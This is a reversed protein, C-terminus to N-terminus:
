LLGGIYRSLIRPHISYRSRHAEELILERNGGFRPVWIRGKFTMFGRSDMVLKDRKSGLGETIVNEELLADLQASKIRDLLGSKAEVRMSHLQCISGQGKRSLADAVVNAKGPHYKIECDYDKLLEM